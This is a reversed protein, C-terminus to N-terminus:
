SCTYFRKKKSGKLSVIIETNDLGPFYLSLQYSGSTNSAENRAIQQLQRLTFIGNNLTFSELVRNSARPEQVDFTLGNLKAELIKM